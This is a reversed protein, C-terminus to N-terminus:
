PALIERPSMEAAVHLEQPLNEAHYHSGGALRVAAYFAGALWADYGCALLAERLVQDALKRDVGSSYLFDHVVGAREGKGGAALYVIPLRPVSAFDTLYDRPVIVAKGLLDSEYELPKLVKWIGGFEDDLEVALKSAFRSM